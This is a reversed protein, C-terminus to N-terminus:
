QQFYATPVAIAFIMMAVSGFLDHKIASYAAAASCATFAAFGCIIAWRDMALFVDDKM